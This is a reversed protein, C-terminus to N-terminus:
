RDDGTRTRAHSSGHGWRSIGLNGISRNIHDRVGRGGIVLFLAIQALFTLDLFGSYAGFDYARLWYAVHLVEQCWSTLLLAWGWWFRYATTIALAGLIGDMISWLDKSNLLGGFINAPKYPTWALIYQLWGAFLLVALPLAVRRAKGTHAAFLVAAACLLGNVFAFGWDM